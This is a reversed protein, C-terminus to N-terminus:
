MYMKYVSVGNVQFLGIKIYTVYRLTLSVLPLAHQM